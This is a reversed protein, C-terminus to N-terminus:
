VGNLGDVSEIRSVVQWIQREGSVAKSDRPVLMGTQWRKLVSDAVEEADFVASVGESVDFEVKEADEGVGNEILVSLVDDAGSVVDPIIPIVIPAVDSIKINETISM